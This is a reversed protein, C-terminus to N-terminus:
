KGVCVARTVTKCREIHKLMHTYAHCSPQESAMMKITRLWSYLTLKVFTGPPWSSDAVHRAAVGSHGPVQSHTQLLPPTQNLHPHTAPTPEACRVRACMLLSSVRHTTSHHTTSGSNYTRTCTLQYATNTTTTTPQKNLSSTAPTRQGSHLHTQAYKHAASPRDVGM